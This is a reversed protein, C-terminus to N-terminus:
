EGEGPNDYQLDSFKQREGDFVMKSTGTRGHRNKALIGESINHAKAMRDEWWRRREEFKELTETTRKRPEENRLYYEERYVFMVADADQEISGSERLDALIPRKDEREEVKRSLQSLALVPVNLTKAIRKCAGSIATIEAVRNDNRRPDDTTMLQLYDIVVMALGHKRQIRRARALVQGPSVGAADDIFFPLRGMEQAADIMRQMEADDVHGAYQRDLNIGARAALGKQAIEVDGMEQTIFLVAGEKRGDINNRLAVGEGINVALTTKGMAPRGALIYLRGRHFGGIRQDIAKIGSKMGAVGERRARDIQEVAKYAADAMTVVRHQPLNTGDLAALKGELQEVLDPADTEYDHQFGLRAEEILALIQRRKWCGWVAHGYDEANIVTVVCQALEVLYQATGGPFEAGGLDQDFQNKLTVVNVIRAGAILRGMAEFVRGHLADAFHEPLLFGSVRDYVSNNALIAGLLAQEATYNHPPAERRAAASDTTDRHLPANMSNNSESGSRM